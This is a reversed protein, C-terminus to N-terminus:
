ERGKSSAINEARYEWAPQSPYQWIGLRARRASQEDAAYDNSFRVFAWAMGSRVMERNVDLDGAQCRALIRGYRDMSVPECHVPGASLIEILADTAAAGCDVQGCSQGREPADIGFLRVRKGALDLTDGDLVRWAEANSPSVLGIITAFASGVVLTLVLALARTRESLPIGASLSRFRSGSASKSYRRKQQWWAPLAQDGNTSVMQGLQVAIGFPSTIFFTRSVGSVSSLVSAPSSDSPCAHSDLSRRLMWTPKGSRFPFHQKIGNVGIPMVRFIADKVILERRQCSCGAGNSFLKGCITIARRLWSLNPM